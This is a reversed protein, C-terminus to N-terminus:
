IYVYRMYETINTDIYLPTHTHTHTYMYIYIPLYVHM